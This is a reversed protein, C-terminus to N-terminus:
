CRLNLLHHLQYCRLNVVRHDPYLGPVSFDIALSALIAVPTWPCRPPVLILMIQFLRCLDGLIVEDLDEEKLYVFLSACDTQTSSPM